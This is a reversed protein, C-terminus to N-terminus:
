LLSGAIGATQCTTLFGCFLASVATKIIVAKRNPGLASLVGIQIGLSGLNGFGCLSYVAINFGRTTLTDRMDALQAYAVFRNTSFSSPCCVLLTLLTPSAYRFLMYRGIRNDRAM